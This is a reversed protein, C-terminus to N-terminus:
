GAGLKKSAEHLRDCNSLRWNYLKFSIRHTTKGSLSFKVFISSTNELLLLTPDSEPIPKEFYRPFSIFVWIVTMGDIGWLLKCIGDSIQFNVNLELSSAMQSIICRVLHQFRFVNLYMWFLFALSYQYFVRKDISKIKFSFLFFLGKPM